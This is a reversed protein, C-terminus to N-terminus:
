TKAHLEKTLKAITALDAANARLRSWRRKYRGYNVSCKWRQTGNAQKGGYHMPADHCKCYRRV